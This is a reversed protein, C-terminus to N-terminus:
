GLYGWGQGRLGKTKSKLYISNKFHFLLILIIGKTIFAM